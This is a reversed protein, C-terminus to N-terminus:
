LWLVTATLLIWALYNVALKEYRTAIRRYGKLRGVTPKGRSCTPGSPLPVAAAQEDPIRDAGLYARL